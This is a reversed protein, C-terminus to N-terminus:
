AERVQALANEIDVMGTNKKKPKVSENKVTIALESIDLTKVLEDESEESSLVVKVGKKGRAQEDKAKLLEFLEDTVPILRVDERSEVVYEFSQTKYRKYYILSVRKEHSVLIDGGANFFCVSDVRHPFGIERLFKKDQDWV